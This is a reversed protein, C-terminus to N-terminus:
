RFFRVQFLPQGYRKATILITRKDIQKLSINRLPQTHSFDSQPRTLPKFRFNMSNYVLCNELTASPDKQQPKSILISIFCGGGALGMKEHARQTEPNAPPKHSKRPDQEWVSCPHAPLLSLRSVNSTFSQGSELISSM